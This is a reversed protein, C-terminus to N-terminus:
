ELNATIWDVIKQVTLKENDLMKNSTRQEARNTEEKNGIAWASLYFDSKDEFQQSKHSSPIVAEYQSVLSVEFPDNMTSRGYRTVKMKTKISVDFGQGTGEAGPPNEEAAREYQVSFGAKRFRAQLSEYSPRKACEDVVLKEPNAEWIVARNTSKVTHSAQEWDSQPCRMKPLQVELLNGALANAFADELYTEQLKELGYDVILITIKRDKGEQNPTPIQAPSGSVAVLVGLITALLRPTRKLATGWHRRIPDNM